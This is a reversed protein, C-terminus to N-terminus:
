SRVVNNCIYMRVYTCVGLQTMSHANNPEYTICTNYSKRRLLIIYACQTDLRVAACLPLLPSDCDSATLDPRKETKSARGTRSYLTIKKKKKQLPSAENIVGQIISSVSFTWEHSKFYKCHLTNKKKTYCFFFFYMYYKVIKKDAHNRFNEYNEWIAFATRTYRSYRSFISKVRRTSSFTARDNKKFERNLYVAYIHIVFFYM